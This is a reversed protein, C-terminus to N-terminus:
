GNMRIRPIWEKIVGYGQGFDILENLYRQFRIRKYTKDPKLIKQDLALRLSWELDKFGCIARAAVLSSFRPNIELLRVGASSKRVQINCSGKLETIKVIQSAYEMLDEHDTLNDAYWSAGRPGLERKFAIGAEFEKSSFVGISFEGFLNDIYQQIVPKDTEELFRILTERNEAINVSNSGSSFRPKVVCPFGHKQIYLEVEESNMGDAYAALEIKGDLYRFSKLKDRFENLWSFKHCLVITSSFEKLTDIESSLAFIEPESAPILVDINIKKCLEKICELYNPDRAALMHHYEDVFADGIGKPIMDCGYIKVPPDILRLGKIIAQGLDGGVGTVLIQLSDSNAKKNNISDM